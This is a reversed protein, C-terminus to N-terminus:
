RQRGRAEIKDQFAMLSIAIVLVAGYAIQLVFTSVNFLTLVSQILFIDIAGIAAGILGGRGGALSVGGLAVASIAILTYSPAINADASGILATMMLGAIGAFLGTIVYSLFRVFPVPVGATYAARDDSGTAMLQDYYPLRRVGWWILFIAAIPLISLPGNLTKLWDPVTGMPSPLITLTVGILILYTGLTAVIPQIRVYAALFGNVAGIAIGIGLAATIVVFPSSLGLDTILIKVVIANVFGMIPGVSVDIGGRGGLIAPTSALAAGILPAALGILIGWNAPAFRVPNLWINLVLLVILLAPAFGTRRWVARVLGDQRPTPSTDPVATM